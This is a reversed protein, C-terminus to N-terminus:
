PQNKSPELSILKKIRSLELELQEFRQWLASHTNSLLEISMSECAPCMMYELKPDTDVIFENIASCNSCRCLLKIM